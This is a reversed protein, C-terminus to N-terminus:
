LDFTYINNFEMIMRKEDDEEDPASRGKKKRASVTLDMFLTNVIEFHFFYWARCEKKVQLFSECTIKKFRDRAVYLKVGIYLEQLGDQCEKWDPLIYKPRRIQQVLVDILFCSFLFFLIYHM